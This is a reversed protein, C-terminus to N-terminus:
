CGAVGAVWCPNQSWERFVQIVSGGGGGGVGEGFDLRHVCANWGLVGLIRVNMDKICSHWLLFVGM